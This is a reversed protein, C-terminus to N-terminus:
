ADAATAHITLRWMESLRSGQEEGGDTGVSWEEKKSQDGYQADAATERAGLYLFIFFFLSPSLLVLARM